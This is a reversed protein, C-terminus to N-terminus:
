ARSRKILRIRVGKEEGVNYLDKMQLTLISFSEQMRADLREEVEKRTEQRGDVVSPVAELRFQRFLKLFIAVFEVQAMKQGPCVRPGASWPIFSGKPASWLTTGDANLWRTPRFVLEDDERPEEGPKLNVNRYVDADMHIAVSNVYVTTNKPFWYTQGNSPHTITLDSRNQKALHVLPTYLRLTEFMLALIRTVKPFLATYAFETSSTNTPLLVDVEKFLWDQWEPHRALLVLAFSLTNATTDFGAGTFIFLNGLMEEDSLSKGRKEGEGEESAKLLQSIINSRSEASGHHMRQQEKGLLEWTHKPFEDVAVSLRKLLDAGPLFNPYWELFWKPLIIPGAVCEIVVKVCEIYSMRYGGKADPGEESEEWAVSRGMGAGTLVNITIKKMGDFLGVTGKEGSGGVEELLGDTQKVTEDWITRSIRENLTSAVVRRQRAWDEGDSSLLNRGFRDMFVGIADQQQFDGTRRLIELALEPDRTSFEYKGLTVMVYSKTGDKDGAANGYERFVRLKETFEFCYITLVLRNYIFTPLNRKLWPRLPVSIIMWVPHDQEWPVIFHPFGSKRAWIYNRMFRYVYSSLWALLLTTLITLLSPM